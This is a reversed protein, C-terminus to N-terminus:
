SDSRERLSPDPDPPPSDISFAPGDNQEATDDPREEPVAHTVLSDVRRRSERSTTRGGRLRAAYALGLVVSVPMGVAIVIVLVIPDM